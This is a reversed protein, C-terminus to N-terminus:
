VDNYKEHFSMISGVLEFIWFIMAFLSKSYLDMPTKYRCVFSMKVIHSM